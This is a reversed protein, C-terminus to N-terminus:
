SRGLGRRLWGCRAPPEIWAAGVVIRQERVRGRGLLDGGLDAAAWDALHEGVDAAVESDNRGM